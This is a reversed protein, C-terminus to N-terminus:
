PHVIQLTAQMGPHYFCFYSEATEADIVLRWIDQTKMLGSDWSRDNATATHPVADENVFVVADGVAVRLMAPDFAFDKIKVLHTRITTASRTDAVLHEEAGAVRPSTGTAAFWLITAFLTLPVPGLFKM